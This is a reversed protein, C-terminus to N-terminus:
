DRLDEIRDGEIVRSGEVDIPGRQGRPIRKRVFRILMLRVLLSVGGIAAPVWFIWSYDSLVIGILFAIPLIILWRRAWRRLIEFALLGSAARAGAYPDVPPEYRETSM